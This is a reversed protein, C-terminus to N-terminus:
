PTGGLNVDGDGDGDLDVDVDVDLDVDLNFFSPPPQGLNLRHPSV